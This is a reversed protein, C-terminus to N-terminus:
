GLCIRWEKDADVAVFGKKISNIKQKIFTKTHTHFTFKSSAINSKKRSLYLIDGRRSMFNNFQTNNNFSSNFSTNLLEIKLINNKISYKYQAVMVEDNSYHEKIIKIRNNKM